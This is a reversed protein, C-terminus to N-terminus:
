GRRAPWPPSRATRSAPTGSTPSPSAAQGVLGADVMTSRSTGRRRSPPTPTSSWSTTTHRLLHRRRSQMLISNYTNTAADIFHVKDDGIGEQFKEGTAIFDDWTPWLAGVEDRDTPLGAKEFLDRRYCMAMGGVDTGLGITDDGDATTAQDYKWACGSTRAPRQVRPGALERVQRPEAPLQRGPGGRDGRRRRRRQRRRDAPDAPHQVARPRGRRDRRDHRGPPRGRVAQLPGRLRLQRVRQGAAHRGRRKTATTATAAHWRPGDLRAGPERAPGHPPDPQLTHEDQDGELRRPPLTGM